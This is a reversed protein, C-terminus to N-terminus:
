KESQILGNFYLHVLNNMMDKNSILSSNRTILNQLGANFIESYTYLAENGITTPIYGQNKGEDYFRFMLKKISTNFSHFSEAKPHLFLDKLFDGNFLELSKIKSQMIINLKELFDSEDDILEATRKTIDSYINNIVTTILDEKSNFYKYITVKSVNAHEAIEDITVKQTGYRNCLEITSKIIHGMKQQKRKEHGSM